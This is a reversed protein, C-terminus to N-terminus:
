MSLNFLFLLVFILHNQCDLTEKMFKPSALSDFYEDNMFKLNKKNKIVNIVNFYYSLRIHIYNLITTIYIYYLQLIYTIYNYM